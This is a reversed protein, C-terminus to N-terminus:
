VGQKPFTVQDHTVETVALTSGKVLKALERIAATVFDRYADELTKVPIDLCTGFYIRISRGMESKKKKKSGLSCSLCNKSISRTRIISRSRVMFTGWFGKLDIVRPLVVGLDGAPHTCCKRERERWRQNGYGSKDMYFEPTLETKYERALGSNERRANGRWIIEPIKRRMKSRRWM